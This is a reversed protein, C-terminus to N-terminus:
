EEVGRPKRAMLGKSMPVEEMSEEEPIRGLAPFSPLNDKNMEASVEEVIKRAESRSIAQEKAKAEYSYVYEVGSVDGVYRILENVVPTVLMSIDITHYGDMVASTTLMDSISEVSIGLELTEAIADQKEPDLLKESYFQVAEELTVFQPPNEWPRNGPETTLSMGPIPGSLNGPDYVAPSNQLKM